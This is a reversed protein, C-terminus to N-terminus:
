DTTGYIYFINIYFYVIFITSFFTVWYQFFVMNIYNQPISNLLPKSAESGKFWIKSSILKYLLIVSILELLFLFTFITNVFFLYPILLFLNKISFLYDTSKTLHLKKFVGKLLFFLIFGFLIVFLLLYTTFNNLNFHNFWISSNKGYLFYVDVIKFFVLYYYFSLFSNNNFNKFINVNTSNKTTIKITDTNLKFFFFWLGTLLVLTNLFFYFDNFSLSVLFIFYDMFINLQFIRIFNKLFIVNNTFFFNNLGLKLYMYTIFIYFPKKKKLIFINIYNKLNKKFNFYLFYKKYLGTSYNENLNNFPNLFNSQSQFIVLIKIRNLINTGFRLFIVNINNFLLISNTLIIKNLNLFKFFVKLIFFEM